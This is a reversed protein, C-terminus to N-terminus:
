EGFSDLTFHLMLAQFDVVTGEDAAKSLHEIVKRGQILFTDSASEQFAKTNFMTNSLQRQFKWKPGESVFMGGDGVFDRLIDLYLPGKEYSCFNTKLTHEINEPTDIQIMRGFGPLSISWVPGLDNYQKEFFDYLETRPVSALLPLHGLIPFAGKPQKLDQRRRTGIAHSRYRYVCLVAVAVLMIIVNSYTIHLLVHRLLPPM